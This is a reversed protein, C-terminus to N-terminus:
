SLRKKALELLEHARVLWPTLLQILAAAEASETEPEGNGSEEAGPLLRVVPKRGSREFVVHHGAHARLACLALIRRNTAEAEWTLALGCDVCRAAVVQHDGLFRLLAAQNVVQFDRHSKPTTM